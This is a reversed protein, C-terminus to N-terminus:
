LKSGTGVEVNKEKSFEADMYKAKRGGITSRKTPNQPRRHKQRNGGWRLRGRSRTGYRGGRRGRSGYSEESDRCHDDPDDTGWDHGRSAREAGADGVAGERGM